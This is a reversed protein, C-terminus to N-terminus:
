YEQVTINIVAGTTERLIAARVELRTEGNSDIHKTEESSASTEMLNEFQFLSIPDPGHMWHRLLSWKHNGSWLLNLEIGGGEYSILVLCWEAEEPAIDIWKVQVDKGHNELKILKFNLRVAFGFSDSTFARQRRGDWQENPNVSVIQIQYSESRHLNIGIPTEADQLFQVDAEDVDVALYIRRLPHIGKARSIKALANTESRLYVGSVKRVYIGQAANGDNCHLDLIEDEKQGVNYVLFPNNIKLQGNTIACIESRASATRTFATHTCNAFEAPSEALVGRVPRTDAPQHEQATWALLSLDGTRELVMEQLRQFAAKGGEGYLMPMHIGFVGMLCYAIDETRTTERHAAWSMKQAASQARLSGPKNLLGNKPIRTIQVLAGALEEKAGAYSWDSSYFELVSPAILEQLTWGRTFWRCKCLATYLTKRVMEYDEGDGDESSDPPAMDSDDVLAPGAEAHESDLELDSLYAFCVTSGQYWAFMANIAESLEASSSKDICCTDVWSYPIDRELALKCTRRIKDFGRKAHAKNMNGMMDQFTVEDDEWTHSLIAYKAPPNPFSVLTLSANDLLWM